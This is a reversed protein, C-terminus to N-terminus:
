FIAYDQITEVLVRFREELSKRKANEAELEQIKQQLEKPSPISLFNPMLPWLVIATAVSVAATLLKVLGEAGYYPHWVVLIEFLHTTGAALIFIAFMQLLWNFEMDKRKRVFYILAFPIAYYAAAIVADSGVNLWLLDHRWSLCLGHSMLNKTSFFNELYEMAPKEPFN